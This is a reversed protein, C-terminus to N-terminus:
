QSLRKKSADIISSGEMVGKAKLANDITEGAAVKPAVSPINTIAKAKPKTEPSSATPPSVPAGVPEQSTDGPLTSGDDKGWLKKYGGRAFESAEEPTDFEVFEDTAMAYNFAAEDELQVLKGNPKQVITPYAIFKGDVESDAMRHTSVTGDDNEIVPFESPNVVREMFSPVEGTPNTPVGSLDPKTPEVPAQPPVEVPTDTTTEEERPDGPIFDIGLGSPEGADTTSQAGVSLLRLKVRFPEEVYNRTGLNYHAATDRLKGGNFMIDRNAEKYYKGTLSKMTRVVQETIWHSKSIQGRALARRRAMIGVPDINMKALAGFILNTEPAGVKPEPNRELLRTLKNFNLMEEYSEKGMFAVLSRRNDSLYTVMKESTPAAKNMNDWMLRKIGRVAVEATAPDEINNVINNYLDEAYKPSKLANEAATPADVGTFPITYSTANAKETLARKARDRGISEIATEVTSLQSEIEPFARLQKVYKRKWGALINDLSKTGDQGKSLSNYLNDMVHQSLSDTAEESDKYLVKFDELESLNNSNWVRSLIDERHLIVDGTVRSNLIDHGLGQRFRPVFERKYFTEAQTFAEWSKQPIQSELTDLTAKEVEQLAKIKSNSREPKSFEERINKRLVRLLGDKGALDNYTNRIPAAELKLQVESPLILPSEESVNGRKQKNLASNVVGEIYAPVDQDSKTYEAKRKIIGKVTQEVSTMDLKVVDGPDALTYYEEVMKGYVVKVDGLEKELAKGATLPNYSPDEISSYLDDTATSLQDDMVQLRKTMTGSIDDLIGEMATHDADTMRVSMAERYSDVAGKIQRHVETAQEPFNARAGEARADILTGEAISSSTIPFDEGTLARLDDVEAIRADLADIDIYGSEDRPLEAEISRISSESINEGGGGTVKNKLYKATFWSVQAGIFAMPALSGVMFGTEIADKDDTAVSTAVAGTVGTASSIALMTADGRLATSVAASVKDPSPSMLSTIKKGAVETAAEIPAVGMKAAKESLKVFGAGFGTLESALYLIQHKDRQSVQGDTIQNYLYRAGGRAGRLTKHLEAESEDGIFPMAMLEILGTAMDIPLDATSVIGNNIGDAIVSVVEWAYEGVGQDIEESTFSDVQKIKENLSMEELQDFSMVRPPEVVKQEPFPDGQTFADLQDSSMVKPRPKEVEVTPPLGTATVTDVGQPDIVDTNPVEESSIMGENGFRAM